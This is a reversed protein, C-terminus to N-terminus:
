FDVPKKANLERYRETCGHFCLGFFEEGELRDDGM